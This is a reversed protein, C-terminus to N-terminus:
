DDDEEVDGFEFMGARYKKAEAVDATLKKVVQPYSHLYKCGRKDVSALGERLLDANICALPDSASAPDLPDILRLHLMSGERYDVNAVLKRGECLQRFRDIAELHHENKDDVIKVFSRHANFPSRTIGAIM